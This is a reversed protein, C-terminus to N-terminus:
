GSPTLGKFRPGDSCEAVVAKGWPAGRLAKTQTGDGGGFLAAIDAYSATFNSGSVSAGSAIAKQKRDALLKELGGVRLFHDEVQAREEGTLDRNESEAQHLINDVDTVLGLMRERLAKDDQARLPVATTGAVTKDRRYHVGAPPFPTGNNSKRTWGIPHSSTRAGQM